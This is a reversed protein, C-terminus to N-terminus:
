YTDWDFGADSRASIDASNALLVRAVPVSARSGNIAILHLPTQGAMDRANVDAGAQLLLEAVTAHAARTGDGQAAVLHLPTWGLDNRAESAHLDNALCRRVSDLNADRVANHIDTLAVAPQEM